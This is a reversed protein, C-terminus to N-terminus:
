TGLMSSAPAVATRTGSVGPLKAGSKALIAAASVGRVRRSMMLVGCLGLPVTQDGASM